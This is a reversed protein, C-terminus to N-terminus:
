ENLEKALSQIELLQKIMDQGVSESERYSELISIVQSAKKQMGGDDKLTKCDLSKSLVGKLRGVEENLFAKLSLGNDSFSIAHRTIIEKQEELLSDGYKENFNKVFTRYVLEDTPELDLEKKDAHVIYSEVFKNELLVRERVPLEQNLIQAITALSKYNQVFNSFVHPSLEKNIKNILKTQEKFIEKKNLNSYEKQSEKVIRAATERTIQPLEGAGLLEVYLEKEMYLAKGKSFFERFIELVKTKTKLDKAIVCKTAERILVEYLFATNRKKNHKSKSKYQKKKM